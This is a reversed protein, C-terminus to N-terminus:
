QQMVHFVVTAGDDLGLWDLNQQDRDTGLEVPSGYTQKLWFQIIAKIKLTKCTKMRLSRLTMTPLVRLVLPEAASAEQMVDGVNPSLSRYLNLAILRQSLKDRPANGKAADDEPRGHKKCLNNWQPHAQRRQDESGPERIVYSLYLIESDAREKHSITTGDLALLSPIRAITFPRSHVQSTLPNGTMTLTELGPCWSSLADINSWADIKNYSLSIHKVTRLGQQPDEPFPITDICNSTVMLRQLSTYHSLSERINMWDSCANSDLNIVQITDNRSPHKDTATQLRTLSNYGMEILRLNPMAATATQMELWTLLTGNLQLETLHLFAKKMVSFDTAPQLRNRNLCLKQLTPLEQAILAVVDWSPILSTSLDLGRISPCTERIKGPPDCRAVDQDDLSLSRGRNSWSFVGAGSAGYFINASPRIFSGANPVRCSFYRKGEKCGGHKGRRPDDWEIGLWAGTTRDVNGVFRVTGSHGALRIRTGVPPLDM